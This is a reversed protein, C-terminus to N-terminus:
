FWGGKVAAVTLVLVTVETIENIAGYVDGTLGGLRKKFYFAIGTIIGFTLIVILLGAWQLFLVAAALALVAAIVYSLVTTKQKFATGLGSPRAYPFANVAYVMASRGAVPMLILVELFKTAPLYVLGAFKLLLMVGIAIVGFSGTRSDRMIQLREEATHGGFGDFTDGLGDIHIAGTILAAAAIVLISNITQPLFLKFIWGLGALILGIIIGIVPFYVLSGSIEDAAAERQRPFPIITLFRWAAIFKL